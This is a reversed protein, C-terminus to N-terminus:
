KIKNNLCINLFYDVDLKMTDFKNLFLHNKVDGFSKKLLKNSKTCEDIITEWKLEDIRM